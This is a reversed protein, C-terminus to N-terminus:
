ERAAEFTEALVLAVIQGAHRIRDTALPQITTGLYGGESFLKGPKVAGAANRHTLIDLVGPVARSASEDIAAIRGLAIASTVLYAYAPDALPMDSAYRAEGTVKLRGDVRPARAGIKANQEM